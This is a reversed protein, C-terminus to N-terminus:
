APQNVAPIRQQARAPHRRDAAPLDHGRGGTTGPPTFPIGASELVSQYVGSVLLSAPVWPWPTAATLRSLMVIRVVLADCAVTWSRGPAREIAEALDSWLAILEEAVAAPLDTPPEEGAAAVAGDWRHDM